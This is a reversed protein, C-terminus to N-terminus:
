IVQICPLMFARLPIEAGHQRAAARDRFERLRDVLRQADQDELVTFILANFGPREFSDLRAGSKGVGVVHPLDTYAHVGSKALVKLVESELSGRFVVVVMQM